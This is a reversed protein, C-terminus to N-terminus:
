ENRILEKPIDIKLLKCIPQVGVKFKRNIRLIDEDDLEYYGFYLYGEVLEDAYEKIRKCLKKDM